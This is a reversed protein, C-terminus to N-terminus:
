GGAEIKVDFEAQLVLSYRGVSKLCCPGTKLNEGLWSHFENRSILGILGTSQDGSKYNELKSLLERPKCHLNKKSFITGLFTQLFNAFAELFREFHGVFGASTSILFPIPLM